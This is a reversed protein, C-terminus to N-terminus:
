FLIAKTANHRVNVKHMSLNELKALHHQRLNYYTKVILELLSFHHSDIGVLTNASHEKIEFIDYNGVEAKVSQLVSVYKIQQKQSLCEKLCKETCLVTTIVGDSPSILGGNNKLRLFLYLDDYKSTAKSQIVASRCQECSLIKLAKRVVWGSLYVTINGLVPHATINLLDQPLLNQPDIVDEPEDQHGRNFTPPLYTTTAQVLSTDDLSKVNGAASPSVGCKTVLRQYTSRKFNFLQHTTIGDEQM